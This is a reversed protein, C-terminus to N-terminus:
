GKLSGATLGAVIHRQMVIFFIVMPILVIVTTTMFAPWNVTFQSVASYVDLVLTNKEPSSIFVNPYFFDNWVWLAQFVGVTTLIPRILPVVIQWYIRWASAGDLRAAEILEIPLTRMYGVILFYCFVSGSAYLVVLGNLSDVLHLKVLLEYLPILTTQAPIIFGLVLLLGIVRSSATSRLIMGFAAMSGVVLMLAVSLVLVFLSNGAARLLDSDTLAQTWNDFFWPSPLGLPSTTAQAQTKFTNVVIYYFPLGVLCALPIMVFPATWSRKDTNM